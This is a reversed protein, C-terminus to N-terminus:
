FDQGAARHYTSGVSARRTSFMCRDADGDFCAGPGSPRPMKDKLMQLNAEVLPNARASTGTIEFLIPVIENETWTASCRRCWRAAMGNSPM